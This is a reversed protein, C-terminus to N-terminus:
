YLLFYWGIAIGLALFGAFLFLLTFPLTDRNKQNRVYIRWAILNALSGFLSGFGGANVGWLLAPWHPTFKALLIASPVNSIIQSLGISYLFVIKPRELPISLLHMFNNTMIFFLLFLAILGYDVQLVERDFFLAYIPVLVIIWLPLWHFIGLLILFFMGGYFWVGAQLPESNKSPIAASTRERLMIAAILFLVLFLLSFPAITQVFSLPTIRYHWYLFLNQPNGFPTLASGANASLAELIVIWDKHPLSLTLTLPVIILLTIDNTVFMSLFFTLLILKPIIWKGREIFESTKSLVKTRKLGNIVWLLGMLIWVVDWEDSTCVPWQHAFLGSLIAGFAALILLWEHKLFAKTRHM